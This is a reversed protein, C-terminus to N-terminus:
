YTSEFFFMFFAVLNLVMGGLLLIFIMGIQASTAKVFLFSACYTFPIVALGYLLYLTFVAAFEDRYTTVDFAVILIFSFVSPIAYMFLDFLANSMWYALPSLGNIMGM